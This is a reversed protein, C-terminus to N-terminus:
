ELRSLNAPCFFFGPLLDEGSVQHNGGYLHADGSPRYATVTQSQADVLWVLRTGAALYERIKQQIESIRDHPSVVEVALDPPGEFFGEDGKPGLRGAAVFVIDPARVVDPDRFLIFGWKTGVVGLKREAVFADM